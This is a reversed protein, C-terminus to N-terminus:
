SQFGHCEFGSLPFGLQKLFDLTSGQTNANSVYCLLKPAIANASVLM